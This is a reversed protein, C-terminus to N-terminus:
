QQNLIMKQYFEYEQEIMKDIFDMDKKVALTILTEEGDFAGYHCLSRGTLWMIHQMQCLYYDPIFGQLAQKFATKGCKFEAVVDENEVLFDTSCMAWDYNIWTFAGYSESEVGLHVTPKGTFGTQKCYLERAKPELLTGRRMADNLAEPEIQGTKELMLKEASKFGNLGLICSADTATIKTKRLALWSESGQEM